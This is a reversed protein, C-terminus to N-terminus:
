SQKLLNANIRRLIELRNVPVERPAQTGIRVQTGDISLVTITIDNGIHISEGIKRTLILM